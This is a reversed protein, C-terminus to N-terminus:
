QFGATGPMHESVLAQKRVVERQPFCLKGLPKFPNVSHVSWSSPLVSGHPAKTRFCQAAAFLMNEVTKQLGRVPIRRDWAHARLGSGTQASGGIASLLTKWRKQRFELLQPAVLVVVSAVRRPFWQKQLPKRVNGATHKKGLKGYMTGSLYANKMNYTHRLM